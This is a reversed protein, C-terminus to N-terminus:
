LGFLTIPYLVWPKSTTALRRQLILQEISNYALTISVSFYGSQEVCLYFSGTLQYERMKDNEIVLQNPDLMLNTCAPVFDLQAPSEYLGIYFLDLENEATMKAKLYNLDLDNRQIRQAQIYATSLSFSFIIFVLILTTSVLYFGRTVLMPVRKYAIM